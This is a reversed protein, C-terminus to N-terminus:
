TEPSAFTMSKLNLLFTFGEFSVSYSLQPFFQKLNPAHCMLFAQQEIASQWSPSTEWEMHTLKVRM